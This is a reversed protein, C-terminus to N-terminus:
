TITLEPAAGETNRKSVEGALTTVIHNLADRLQPTKEYNAHPNGADSNIRLETFMPLEGLFPLNLQHAMQEAGGRGFLDHKSGDPMPLYSMNEIIGLIPAGLQQFMKIARVADDLAVQQPTAVVVAGTLPLLQCLTLPVDGTGPPLDVILYDLEPWDTNDLLLQKFAGHAMPGRWILPKDQEVLSGITVAHIGHVHHPLIKAGRVRPPIGKIGLLTPMSPGYIDGDMLGVQAGARQLGVAINLALTSKGVGGKGAGVAIINKVQPLVDKKPGAAAGRTNATLTLKVDEAGIRKLAAAVDREIVDKLPCAPTTLEVTVHVTSGEVRVDKVMNLTVIDKFLEPDKVTRLAGLVAENTLSM